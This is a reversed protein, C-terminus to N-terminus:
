VYDLPSQGTDIPPLFVYFTTFPNILLTGRFAAVSKRPNV